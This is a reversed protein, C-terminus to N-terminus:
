GWGKMPAIMLYMLRPLIFVAFTTAVIMFAWEVAAKRQSLICDSKANRGNSQDAPRKKTKQTM